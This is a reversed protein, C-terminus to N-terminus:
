RGRLNFRLASGVPTRRRLGLFLSLLSCLRMLASIAIQKTISAIRHRTSSAWGAVVTGRPPPQRAWLPGTRRDIRPLLRDAKVATLNPSSICTNIKRTLKM